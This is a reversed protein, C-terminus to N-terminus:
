IIAYHRQFSMSLTPSILILTDRLEASLQRIAYHCHFSSFFDAIILLRFAVPPM